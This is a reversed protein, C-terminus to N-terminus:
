WRVAMRVIVIVTFIALAVEFGFRYYKGDKFYQVANGINFGCVAIELLLIVGLGLLRLFESM